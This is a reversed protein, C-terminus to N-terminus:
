PLADARMNIQVPKLVANCDHGQSRRRDHIEGAAAAMLPQQQAGAIDQQQFSFGPPGCSTPKWAKSPKVTVGAPNECDPYEPLQYSTM